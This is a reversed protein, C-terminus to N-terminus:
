MDLLKRVAPIYRRSVFTTTGDDLAVCFVGSRSVDFHKVHRLNVIESNSIRVFRRGRLREEAEYLRLRLVFTGDITEAVVHRGYTFIRRIEEPELLQVTGNRTGPIRDTPSTLLSVLETVEDSMRDTVIIVKPSRVTEDLRIEVDLIRVM